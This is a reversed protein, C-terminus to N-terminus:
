SSCNPGSWGQFCRCIYADSFENKQQEENISNMNRRCEDDTGNEKLNLQALAEYDKRVCRGNSNCNKQSCQEFFTETSKVYPGLVDKIYKQMNLCEDHLHFMASSGWFVVGAAGMDAPERIALDLDSQDFFHNGSQFIAYPLIPTNLGSFKAQVRATENLIRRIANHVSTHNVAPNFYIRPYLGSSGTFLWGLDDNIRTTVAAPCVIEAATPVGWCRPYGYYGFYGSPRLQRVKDLTGLM